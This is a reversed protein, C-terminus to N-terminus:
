KIDLGCEGWYINGAGANTYTLVCGSTASATATIVPAVGGDWKVAAPWTVTNTGSGDQTFMFTYSGGYVPNSLTITLNEDLTMRWMGRYNNALDITETTGVTGLNVEAPISPLFSSTIRWKTSNQGVLSYSVDPQVLYTLQNNITDSSDADLTCTNAATSDIRQISYFTIGTQADPLNMTVSNSTADCYVLPTSASLTCTSTTCTQAGSVTIGGGVTTTGTGSDYPWFSTWTNTATCFSLGISTATRIWVAGVTCTANPASASVTFVQGAVYTTGQATAARAFLGLCYLGLLVIGAVKLFKGLM